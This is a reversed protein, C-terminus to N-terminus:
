WKGGTEDLVQIERRVAYTERLIWEPPIQHMKDFIATRHTSKQKM